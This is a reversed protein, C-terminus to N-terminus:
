QKIFQAKQKVKGDEFLLATYHGQVLKSLELREQAKGKMVLTGASDYIRFTCSPCQVVGDLHIYNDSPNPFVTINPLESWEDLRSLTRNYIDGIEEASLAREYILLEDVLGNFTHDSFFDSQLGILFPSQSPPLAEDFLMESSLAGDIFLQISNSDVQATIHQWVEPVLSEAHELINGSVLNPNFRVVQEYPNVGIYIGGVGFGSWNNVLATWDTISENPYVWFSISFDNNQGSFDFDTPEITGFYGGNLDIAEIAQGFRDDARLFDNMYNDFHKENGSQDTIGGNYFEYYAVLGETPIQAYISSFLFLFLNLYVYKM